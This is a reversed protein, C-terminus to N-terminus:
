RGRSVKIGIATGEPLVAGAKRTLAIVRGKRTKKSRARKVKRPPKCGAKKLARKVRRAERGAQREARPM